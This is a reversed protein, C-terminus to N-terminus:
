PEKKKLGYKKITKLPERIEEITFSKIGTKEELYARMHGLVNMNTQADTTSKQKDGSEDSGGEAKLIKYLNRSLMEIQPFTLQLVESLKYHYKYCIVALTYELNDAMNM